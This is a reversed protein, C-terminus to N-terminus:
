VIFPGANFWHPYEADAFPRTFIYLNYPPQTGVMYADGYNGTYVAPDPLEEPTDVRGLVKIGIENTNKIDAIDHQNQLVQEQLNRYEKNNIQIM